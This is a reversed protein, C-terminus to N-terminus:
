TIRKSSAEIVSEFRDKGNTFRKILQIKGHTGTLSSVVRPKARVDYIIPREFWPICVHTGEEIVEEKIGKFRNYIM